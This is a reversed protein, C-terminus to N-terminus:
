SYNTYVEKLGAFVYKELFFLKKINTCANWTVGVSYKDGTNLPPMRHLRTAM